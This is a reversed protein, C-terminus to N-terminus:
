QEKSNKKDNGTNQSVHTDTNCHAIQQLSTICRTEVIRVQAASTNFMMVMGNDATAQGALVHCTELLCIYMLRHEPLHTLPNHHQKDTIQKTVSQSVKENQCYQLLYVDDSQVPTTEALNIKM